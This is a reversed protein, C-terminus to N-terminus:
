RRKKRREMVRILNQRLYVAFQHRPDNPDTILELIQQVTEEYVPVEGTESSQRVTSRLERYLQDVKAEASEVRRRAMGCPQHAGFPKMIELAIRYERLAAYPKDKFIRDGAAIHREAAPRRVDLDNPLRRYPELPDPLRGRVIVRLRILNGRLSRMTAATSGSSRGSIVIQKPEFKRVHAVDPDQIRISDEVFDPYALLKRGRLRVVQRTSILRQENVRVLVPSLTLVRPRRARQMYMYGAFVLGLILLALFIMTLATRLTHAPGKRQESEEEAEAAAAVTRVEVTQQAGPRAAAEPAPVEGAAPTAGPLDMDAIDLRLSVDGITVVCGPVLFADRTERGDVAIGNRSGADTIRFRNRDRHLVAHHRSISPLDIPIENDVSRGIHIKDLDGPITFKQGAIPPDLATLVFQLNEGNM